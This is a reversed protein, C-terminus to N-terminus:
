IPYSGSFEINRERNTRKWEFGAVEHGGTRPNSGMERERTPAWRGSLGIATESLILIWDFQTQVIAARYRAPKAMSKLMAAVLQVILSSTALIQPLTSPSNVSFRRNEHTQTVFEMFQAESPSNSGSESTPGM